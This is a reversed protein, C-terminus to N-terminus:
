YEQNICLDHIHIYIFIALTLTYWLVLFILPEDKWLWHRCFPLCAYRDWGLFVWLCGVEYVINKSCGIAVFHGRCEYSQVNFTQVVLYMLTCTDAHIVTYVHVHLEVYAQVLDLLLQTIVQPLGSSMQDPMLIGQPVRTKLLEFQLLLLLSPLVSLPPLSPFLPSTCPPLFPWWDHVYQHAGSCM